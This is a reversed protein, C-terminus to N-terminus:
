ISDFPKLLRVLLFLSVCFFQVFQSRQWRIVSKRATDCCLLKKKRNAVVWAPKLQIESFVVNQHSKHGLKAKTLKKAGFVQTQKNAALQAASSRM